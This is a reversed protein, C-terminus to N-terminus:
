QQFTLQSYLNCRYVSIKVYFTGTILVTKRSDTVVVLHCIGTYQPGVSFGVAFFPLYWITFNLTKIMSLCKGKIHLKLSNM